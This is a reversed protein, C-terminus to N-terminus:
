PKELADAIKSELGPEAGDWLGKIRHMPDNDRLGCKTFLHTLEHAVLKPGAVDSRQVVIAYYGGSGLLGTDRATLCGNVDAYCLETTDVVSMTLTKEAYEACSGEPRGADTWVRLASMYRGADLTRAGDPISACGILALSLMAGRKIM